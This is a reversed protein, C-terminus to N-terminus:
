LIKETYTLTIQVYKYFISHEKYIKSCSSYIIQISIETTELLAVIVQGISYEINPIECFYRERFGSM